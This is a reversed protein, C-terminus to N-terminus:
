PSLPLGARYTIDRIFTWTPSAHCDNCPAEVFNTDGKIGIPTSVLKKGIITLDYMYSYCGKILDPKGGFGKELCKLLTTYANNFEMNLRWAKTNKDYMGNQPNRVLPWVGDKRFPIDPGGFCFNEGLFVENNCDQGTINMCVLGANWGEPVKMKVIQRQNAIELFRYYHSKEPHPNEKTKEGIFPTCASGGEGQYVIEIVAEIARQLDIIPFLPKYLTSIPISGDSNAAAANKINDEPNHWQKMDVQKSVDGTFITPSSDSAPDKIANLQACSEIVSTLLAAKLYFSGITNIEETYTRILFMISHDKVTNWFESPSLSMADIFPAETKKYESKKYDNLLLQMHKSTPITNGSFGGLYEWLRALAFFVFQEKKNAPTEIKAFLDRALGPSMPEISVYVGPILDFITGSGLPTPYQPLMAINTLNVTGGISNMFNAALSLHLMEEVFVSKIIEAVELNRGFETQLSLWATVYPPITTLETIIAAEGLRRLEAVQAAIADTNCSHININPEDPPYSYPMGTDMWNKILKQKSKSLDRTIPMYRPDSIDLEFMAYELMAKNKKIDQYSHLDIIGNKWMVPYLNYYQIFIDRVDFWTPKDKVEVEDYVKVIPQITGINVIKNGDKECEAKKPDGATAPPNFYCVAGANYTPTEPPLYKYFVRMLYVQGDLGCGRPSNPNKVATVTFTTRGDNDTAAPKSISIVDLPVSLENHCTPRGCDTSSKAAVVGIDLAAGVVPRGFRTVFAGFEAKEGVNLKRGLSNTLGIQIGYEPEVAILTRNCQAYTISHALLFLYYYHYFSLLSM